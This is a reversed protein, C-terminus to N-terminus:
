RRRSWRSRLGKVVGDILCTAAYIGLIAVGAYFELRHADWWDSGMDSM